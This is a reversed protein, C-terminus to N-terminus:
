LMGRLDQLQVSQIPENHFKRYSPYRQDESNTEETTRQPFCDCLDLAKVAYVGGFVIKRTLLPHFHAIKGSLLILLLGCVSRGLFCVMYGYRFPETWDAFDEYCQIDSRLHCEILPYNCFLIM